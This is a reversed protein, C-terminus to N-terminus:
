MQDKINKFVNRGKAWGKRKEEGKLHLAHRISSMSDNLMHICQEEHHAEVEHVCLLVLTHQICNEKESANGVEEHNV